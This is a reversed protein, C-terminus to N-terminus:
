CGMGPILEEGARIQSHVLASTLLLMNAQLQLTAARATQQHSYKAEIAGNGSKGLKKPSIDKTMDPTPGPPPVLYEAPVDPSATCERSSAPSEALAIKPNTTLCALAHTNKYILIDGGGKFPCFITM